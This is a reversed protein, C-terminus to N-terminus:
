KRLKIIEIIGSEIGSYYDENKFEPIIIEDIIKKCMEDTLINQTGTGTSIRIKRLKESFIITLGNNKDATGVGWYNSLDLAYKDFNNDTLNESISVIAIQNTTKSEYDSLIKTLNEIQKSTFVDEFDSVYGFPKPLESKIETKQIETKNIQKPNTKCGTVFFLVIVILIFKKM